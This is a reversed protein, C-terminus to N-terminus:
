PETFWRGGGDSGEPSCLDQFVGEEGGRAAQSVCSSLSCAHSSAHNVPSSLRAKRFLLRKEDQGLCHPCSHPAPEM